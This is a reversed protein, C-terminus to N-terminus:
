SIAALTCISGYFIAIIRWSPGDPLITNVERQVGSCLDSSILSTQHFITTMYIFIDMLVYHEHILTNTM